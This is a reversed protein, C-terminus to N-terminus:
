SHNSEPTAVGSSESEKSMQSSMEALKQQQQSYEEQEEAALKEQEEEAIDELAKVFIKMNFVDSHLKPDLCLQQNISDNPTLV